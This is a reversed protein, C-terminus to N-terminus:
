CLCKEMFKLFEQFDILGDGNIDYSKIMRKYEELDYSEKVGLNTVIRRLDCADIFGDNDADFISFTEKIEDFSPEEEEFLAALDPISNGNIGEMGLRKMVMNVEAISLIGERVKLPRQSKCEVVKQEDCPSTLSRGFIRFRMIFKEIDIFLSNFLLLLLNSVINAVKEM